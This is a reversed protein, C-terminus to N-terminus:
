TAPTSPVPGYVVGHELYMKLLALAEGWGAACEVLAALDRESATHGSKVVQVVTGGGLPQLDLAVTTTSDGPTWQFVFRRPPTAELVPGGGETNYHDVAWDVWRFRIRGGPRPDVETGQTFWADWGAATTLMEYVRSSEANIYTRYRIPPIRPQVDNM